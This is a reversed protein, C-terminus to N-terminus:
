SISFFFCLMYICNIGIIIFQLKYHPTEGRCQQRPPRVMRQPAARCVTSYQAADRVGGVRHWSGRWPRGGIDGSMAWHGQPRIVKLLSGSYVDAAVSWGGLDSFVGQCGRPPGVCGARKGPREERGEGEWVFERTKQIINGGVSGEWIQRFQDVHFWKM